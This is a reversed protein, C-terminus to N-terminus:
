KALLNLSSDCRRCAVLLLLTLWGLSGGSQRDSPTSLTNTSISVNQTQSANTSPSVDDRITLTVAYQGAQSFQHSVAVGEASTGDGFQWLYEVISGDSDYSTAADFFCTLANCSATFRAVPAQNGAEDVVQLFVSSLAGWQGTTDQARLYLVHRGLSMAGVDLDISGSETVSDFSGDVPSLAIPAANSDWPPVDLYLAIEAIAQSPETGQQHNFLGDSASVTLEATETQPAIFVAKGNIRIASIDPGSPLLYPAEIVKAAYKLAQLNDPLVHTNYTSCAQFFDTGIEFTLQAIGLEGYSVGDSTGDTPYLGVSQVPTYGNFKAIKRGLTQLALGNPAPENTDGWPWLVLQGYSHLDIHMGQTHEPAADNRGPGRADAFLQKIYTEVAQTEPESAASPGRYIESCADGSSGGAVTGWGWTFNRNLDAGRSTPAASCYDENANKRWLYGAEAIRRGDPNMQLLIHVEHRDLIWHSDADMDYGQLLAEAFALALPATAYERAHMAAQIFLIPKQTTISQNTLKIVLLDDGGKGARKLWSDGIDVKAALQPYQAVLTDIRALTEDLTPYCAYQPIGSQQSISSLVQSEKATPAAQETVSLAFPMVRAYDASSLSAWLTFTDPDSAQLVSHLSIQAKIFVSQNAFTLRYTQVDAASPRHLLANQSDAVYTQATEQVDARVDAQAVARAVAQANAIPMAMALLSVLLSRLAVRTFIM